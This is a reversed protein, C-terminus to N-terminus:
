PLSLKKLLPPSFKSRPYVHDAPAIIPYGMFRTGHKASDNDTFAVVEIDPHNSVYNEGAKSAGFLIARM